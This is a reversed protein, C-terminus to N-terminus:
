QLKSFKLPFPFGITNVWIKKGVTNKRKEEHKLTGEKITEKRNLSSGKAMQQPIDATSM